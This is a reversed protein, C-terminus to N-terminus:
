LYTLEIVGRRDPRVRWTDPDLKDWRLARGNQSATFGSVYRAFNAIGYAGPTWAPLSLLVPATGQVQMTARVAITAAAVEAAGLTVEFRLGSVPASAPTQGQASPAVTSALLAALVLAPGFRSLV